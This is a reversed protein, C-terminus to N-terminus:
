SLSTKDNNKNRVDELKKLEADRGNCSNCCPCGACSSGCSSKGKKKRARNWVIVGVVFLACLIGILPALWSWM